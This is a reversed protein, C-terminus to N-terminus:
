PGPPYSSTDIIICCSAVNYLKNTDTLQEVHKPHYKWGDDPAGLVTDAADPM